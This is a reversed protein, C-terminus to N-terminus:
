VLALEGGGASLSVVFTPYPPWGWEIIGKFRVMLYNAMAGILLVVLICPVVNWHQRIPPKRQPMLRSSEDAEAYDAEGLSATLDALNGSVVRSARMVSSQRAISEM